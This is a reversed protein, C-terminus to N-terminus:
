INSEECIEGVGINALLNKIYQWYMIQGSRSLNNTLLSAHITEMFYNEM